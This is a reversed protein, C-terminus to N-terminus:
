ESRGDYITMDKVHHHTALWDHTMKESETIQDPKMKKIIKARLTIAEENNQLAALNLWMVSLLIDQEANHGLLAESKKDYYMLALHYEANADGQEAANLYWEFAKKGDKLVTNNGLRYMDGVIYQAAAFGAEAANLYWEFAKSDDPPLNKSGLRYIDGLKYQAVVHGQAAAKSGM